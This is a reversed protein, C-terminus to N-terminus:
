EEGVRGEESRYGDYGTSAEDQNLGAPVSGFAYLRVAAGLFLIVFLLWHARIFAAVRMGSVSAGLKRRVSQRDATGGHQGSRQVDETVGFLTHGPSTGALKSFNRVSEEYLATSISDVTSSHASSLERKGSGILACM